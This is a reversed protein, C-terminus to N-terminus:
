SNGVTAFVLFGGYFALHCCRVDFVSRAKMIKMWINLRKGRYCVNRVWFLYSSWVLCRVPKDSEYRERLSKLWKVRYCVNGVRLFRLIVVGFTESKMSTGNMMLVEMEFWTQLFYVIKDKKANREAKKTKHGWVWWEKTCIGKFRIVVCIALMSQVYKAYKVYKVYQVHVHM